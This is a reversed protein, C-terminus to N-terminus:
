DLLDLRDKVIKAILTKPLPKNIPFRIAGSSTEYNQLEKTYKKILVHGLPYLSVFEKYGAVGVIKKGEFVFTPVGYSLVVQYGDLVSGIIAELEKLKALSEKTLKTYYSKVEDQM